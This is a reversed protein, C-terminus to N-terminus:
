GIVSTAREFADVNYLRQGMGTHALYKPCDVAKCDDHRLCRFKMGVPGSGEPVLYPITLRGRVDEHEPDPDVVVGLLYPNAERLDPHDTDIEIGRESLYRLSDPDDLLAEAYRITSRLLSARSSHSLMRSVASSM